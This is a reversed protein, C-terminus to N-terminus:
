SITEVGAGVRWIGEAMVERENRSGERSIIMPGLESLEGVEEDHREGGGM